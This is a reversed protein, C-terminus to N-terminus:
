AKYRTTVKIENDVLTRHVPCRDAITLLKKRQEETVELHDAEWLFLVPRGTNRGAGNLPDVLDQAVPHKPPHVRFRLQAKIVVDDGLEAGDGFLEDLDM